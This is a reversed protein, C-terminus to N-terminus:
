TNYKLWRSFYLLQWLKYTNNSQKLFHDEIIRVVKTFDVVAELSSLEQKLRDRGINNILGELPPNFLTKPREVMEDPLIKRLISKLPFKTQRKHILKQSEAGIGHAVIAEDLLPVRLEISALMSAKDSVRLNHSLFGTADLFQGLKVKDKKDGAYSSLIGDLKLSYNCQLRQSDIFLDSLESSSFYGLMRSYAVGWESEVCYSVLRSFKKSLKGPFIKLTLMLRLVPSFAVFLSHYKLVLYRPYGAFVEDGGMGSLMVKYGNDKASKSLQYTAWFTYDSILEESNSAVFDVSELLSDVDHSSSQLEAVELDKNLYRSILRSYKLDVDASPDSDYKAFFLKAGSFGAALISSDAGGSFFVGLPVDSIQQSNIAESIKQRLAGKEHFEDIHKYRKFVIESSLLNLEMFHGPMLKKIDRFGTDPEYLFGTNFFEYVDNEDIEVSVAGFAKLGKIESSGYIDGGDQFLYVPKIGVVDRVVFLRNKLRDLIVFSFMGQLMGFSLGGFEDYLRLIVETDSNGIFTHGMSELRARLVRHNYIEGNYSLVTGSDSVMPQSGATSLDLISLRNHGIGVQYQGITECLMGSADPGRHVTAMLSKKLEDVPSISRSCYFSIGCM